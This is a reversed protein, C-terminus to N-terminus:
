QASASFCVPRYLARQLPYAAGDKRKFRKELKEGLGNLRDDLRMLTDLVCGIITSLVLVMTNEGKLAGSVGIYITILGLGSLITDTLRKSLFRRFLLGLTGGLLVTAVNVFVSYLM